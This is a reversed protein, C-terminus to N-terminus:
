CSYLGVVVINPSTSSGTVYVRLILKRCLASFANLPRVTYKLVPALVEPQLPHPSIICEPRIIFMCNVTYALHFYVAYNPCHFNIVPNHQLLALMYNWKELYAQSCGHTDYHQTIPGCTIITRTGPQRHLAQGQNGTYVQGKLRCVELAVEQIQLLQNENTPRVIPDDSWPLGPVYVQTYYSFQKGASCQPAPGMTAYVKRNQDTDSCTYIHMRLTALKVM